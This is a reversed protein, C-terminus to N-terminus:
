SGCEDRDRVSKIVWIHDQGLQVTREKVVADFLHSAEKLKGQKKLIRGKVHTMWITDLHREGLTRVQAQIVEDILRRAGELDGQEMMVRALGGKTWLTRKDEEGLTAERLPIVEEYQKRLPPLAPTLYPLQLGNREAYRANDFDGMKRLVDALQMRSGLARDDKDAADSGLLMVWGAVAEDLVEKSAALDFNKSTDGLLGKMELTRVAEEGEMSLEDLAHKALVRAEELMGHNRMLAVTAGAFYTTLGYGERGSEVASKALRVAVQTMAQVVVQNVMAAGGKEEEVKWMVFYYDRMKYAGAKAIDINAFVRQAKGVDQKVDELFRDREEQRMMVNLDGGSKMTCLVEYVCWARGLANGPRGNDDATM